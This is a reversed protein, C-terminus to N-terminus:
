CRLSIRRRSPRPGRTRAIGAQARFGLAHDAALEAFIVDDFRESPASHAGDVLCDVLGEIALDRDLDEIRIQHVGLRHLAKPALGDGEGLEIVRADRVHVLERAVRVAHQHHHLIDAAFGELLERRAATRQREIAGDHEARLYEFRQMVRVGGADHM